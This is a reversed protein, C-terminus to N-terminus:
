SFRGPKVKMLCRDAGASSWYNYSRAMGAIAASRVVPTMAPM